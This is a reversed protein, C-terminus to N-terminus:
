FSIVAELVVGNYKAGELVGTFGAGEYSSTVYEIKSLVNPTLFWGGGVNFRNIEQTSGGKVAKGSVTNYRTGVYLQERNGFRYLLEGGLQTYSGANEDGGKSVEFVGFFEIGGYRLFPNVQIATLNPFGPNFRPQFDNVTDETNFIKHYRSGARDGNYLYDRTGGETSHYVSGTLRVRLDESIQSDYGLKGYLAFGDDGSTPTQNLRGNSLGAVGLFGSKMVTVEAFPETTFADMIYNEVFPNYAASANDSRRFHTDGYNIEDMGFRFRTYQMLGSLFGESIFDLNDMQFYGGKVWAENHHKSSLYTRLHMRLGAAFQIDLNLNASPLTLNPSLEILNGLQNDQELGQFQIAFDGGPRLNLGEFETEDEKAPEFVNIGELGPTRYNQLDRLVQADANAVILLTALATLVLPKILTKM